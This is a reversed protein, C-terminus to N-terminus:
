SPRTRRERLDAGARRRERGPGRRGGTAPDVTVVGHAVDLSLVSGPAEAPRALPAGFSSSSAVLLRTPDLVMGPATFAALAPKDHIPSGRHFTGVQTIAGAGPIGQAVVRAHIPLLFPGGHDAGAGIRLDSAETQPAAQDNGCGVLAVATM